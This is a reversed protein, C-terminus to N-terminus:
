GTVIRLTRRVYDLTEDREAATSAEILVYGARQGSWRLSERVDGEQVSLVAQTVSAHNRVADFGSVEVVKGPASTPFWAAAYSKPTRDAPLDPERDMALQIAARYPDFQYTQAVLDFIFDGPTRVAFEMVAPRQGCLRFELHVLGSRIGACRVVNTVLGDVTRATEPDFSHGCRHAIEVFHPPGTTEKQTFNGFLVSGDRVFGEWSYEPGDFAEELLVRGQAGRLSVRLAEIDTVHEVGNSGSSSLPKVVIPLRPATWTLAREHDTVVLFDPQPIGGAAFCARQLAKNRSLVSAHLSPGTLGLRDAVLAAAMVQPESFALVGDIGGDAAAAYGGATWVEDVSWADPGMGTIRRVDVDGDLEGTWSDGEVLRVRLGLARASELYPRGMFGVGVLLLQEM